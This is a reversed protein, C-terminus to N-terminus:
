AKEVLEKLKHSLENLKKAAHLTNEAGSASEQAVKSVGHITEFINNIGDFADLVVKSVEETAASQEEVASATSASLSTMEDVMRGVDEIVKITSITSFQVSEVQLSIQETAKATQKALEKVETAVVAFGKGAEGARAAEITANLALLNTQQAISSIVKVISGIEESLKGLKQIRENAEVSKEKAHQFMNSSKNTSLSIERISATMEETNAGVTQMGAKIQEISSSASQSQKLTMEASNSMVSSSESLEKSSNMVENAAQGFVNVLNLYALKEKTLDTAYKVVKYIKGDANRIPNYSAQIWINKGNNGIRKYEGSDFQGENLKAWFQKYELSQVYKDECFMRHHRGKIDELSYGLTKLFNENASIVTGDMNFEIVAFAKDIAEMQGKFNANRLIQETEDQAFKIVRVVEGAENKVPSYSARIWIVEGNKKYRKFEGTKSYGNALDSWLKKYELSNVYEPDCFIRHHSGEIEKELYGMAKCFNQNATIIQGTPTFEIIAFYEDMASLRGASSLDTSIDKIAASM